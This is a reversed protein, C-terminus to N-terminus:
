RSFYGTSFLILTHYHPVRKKDISKLARGSISHRHRRAIDPTNVTPVGALIMLLSQCGVGCGYHM